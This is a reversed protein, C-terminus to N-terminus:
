NIVETGDLMKVFLDLVGNLATIASIYQTLGWNLKQQNSTSKEFLFFICFYKESFTVSFNNSKVYSSSVSENRSVTCKPIWLIVQMLCLKIFARLYAIKNRDMIASM